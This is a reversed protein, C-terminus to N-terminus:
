APVKGAHEHEEHPHQGWPASLAAALPAPRGLLYGQGIHCGLDHLAQLQADDELGEAVVELHLLDAVRLLAGLLTHAFPQAQGGRLDAVFSRDIKVTDLPLDRLSSLSTHGTGFDDLAVRVGVARLQGLTHRARDVDRMVATETLELELREPPLGCGRLVARVMGPFDGDELQVPSVNVAVVLAAPLHRADACARRLVWEGLPTILGTAEALPIFEAPSVPGLHPHTWRLLAEVKVARRTRLDFLPQYHLELEGREAAHQVDRELTARRAEAEGLASAYRRVANKGTRKARYMALDAARLLTEPDSGDHPAVSVGVSATVLETRGGLDYPAGLADRVREALAEAGAADAVAGFLAFEDGGLRAAHGEGVGEEGLLARLRGGARRLLADGVEHGRMDNVRKFGDLDVFVVAHVQGGGGGRLAETLAASWGRRNHLGTPLDTHALREHERARARLRGAFSRTLALVTVNSLSLQVLASIVPHSAPDPLHLAAFVLSLAALCAVCSAAARHAARGHGGPVLLTVVYLVPVWWYVETLERLTETGGTFHLLSALRLVLFAGTVGVLTTAVARLATPWRLLAVELALLLAALAPYGVRDFATSRPAQYELGVGLCVAVFAVPLALLLNQRWAREEDSPVHPPAPDPM